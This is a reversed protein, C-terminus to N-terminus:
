LTDTLLLTILSVDLEGGEKLEFMEFLVQKYNVFDKDCRPLQLIM